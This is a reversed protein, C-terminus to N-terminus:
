LLRQEVQDIWFLLVPDDKVYGVQPIFQREIMLRLFQTYAYNIGLSWDGELLTGQLATWAADLAARAGAADGAAQAVAAQVVSEWARDAPTRARATIDALLRAVVEDDGERLKLLASLAQYRVVDGDSFTAWSDRAAALDGAALNLSFRAPVSLEILEDPTANMEPLLLADAGITTIRDTMVTATATDNMALAYRRRLLAIQWSEPAAALARDLTTIGNPADGAQWYLASLNTLAVVNGPELSLVQQYAAIGQQIAAADGAAAAMGYLFGQQYPYLTLRPDAQVVPVLADAAGRYDQTRSALRLADVYETYIRSSWWGTVLLAAWIVAMGVPHGVARWRPQMPLPEVPSVMVMWVILGALAVAPMMAPMDLLHHVGFGVVGSAGAILTLRAAPSAARWNRRLMRGGTVVTAILMLLGPLGLEAMIHLVANHAHAHVQVPPSSEQTMLELGFTFLGSGTVTQAAFTKLAADYLFTRLDASRGPANLSQILFAALALAVLIVGGGASIIAGRWRADLTSWRGPVGAQMALLGIMTLLGAFAGLYAGRSGTLVLLGLALLGYLVLAARPVRQRTMWARVFAVPALVVLVAGLANPNGLTSVLRPISGAQGATVVLQVYGFILIIVGSLLLADLLTERRIVRNALLDTVLYWAAVYLGIYWLGIAMRRAQDLNAVAALGIAIGWGVYVVDWSSQHWTWGRWRHLILWGGAMLGLLALTPTHMEPQLIGNFTAGVSLLYSFILSLLAFAILDPRRSM